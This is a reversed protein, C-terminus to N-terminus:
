GRCAGCLYDSVFVPGECKGCFGAALRTMNPSLHWGDVNDFAALLPENSKAVQQPGIEKDWPYFCLWHNDEWWIFWYGNEMGRKSLVYTQSHDLEV